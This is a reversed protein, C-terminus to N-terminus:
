ASLNKQNFTDTKLPSELNCSTVTGTRILQPFILFKSSISTLPQPPASKGWLTSPRSGNGATDGKMDGTIQDRTDPVKSFLPGTASTSGSPVHLTPEWAQPHVLTLNPFTQPSETLSVLGRRGGGVMTVLWKM